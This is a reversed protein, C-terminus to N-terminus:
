LGIYNLLILLAVMAVTAGTGTGAFTTIIGFTDVKRVRYDDRDGIYINGTDDLAIGYPAQLAASTAPGGDGVGSGGGAITTIIGATNIKRVRRNQEDAIYINGSHDVVVCTPYDLKASTAPGNDGAFGATYIGAITTIIGSTTVKRVVNNHTDAIYLNGTADITVFTPDDLEASTSLGGNGAYGHVGNGAVTTIIQGEAFVPLLLM